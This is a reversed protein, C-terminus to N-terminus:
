TSPAAMMFSPTFAPATAKLTSEKVTDKGKFPVRVKNKVKVSSANLITFHSLDPKKNDKKKSSRGRGGGKNGPRRSKAQTRGGGPTWLVIKEMERASANVYRIDRSYSVEMLSLIKGKGGNRNGDKESIGGVIGGEKDSLGLDSFDSLNDIDDDYFAVTHPRPDSSGFSAM